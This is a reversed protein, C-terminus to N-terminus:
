EPNDGPPFDALMREAVKDLGDTERVVGAATAQWVVRDSTADIIRIALMGQPARDIRSVNNTSKLRFYKYGHSWGRHRGSSIIAVDEVDTHVSILFDVPGVDRRRFGKYSLERDVARAMTGAFAPYREMWAPTVRTDRPLWTYDLYEDFRASDEQSSSVFVKEGACAGLLLALAAVFAVRRASSSRARRM